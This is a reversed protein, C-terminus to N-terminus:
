GASHGDQGTAAQQPGYLATETHDTMTAELSAVSAELAELREMVGPRAPQGDRAEEGFWDDLFHSIRRVIHFFKRVAAVLAALSALILTVKTMLIDMQSPDGPDM